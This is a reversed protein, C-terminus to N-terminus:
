AHALANRLKSMQGSGPQNQGPHQKVQRQREEAHGPVAWGHVLLVVDGATHGEPAGAIRAEADLVGRKAVQEAANQQEGQGVHAQGGVMRAPLLRIAPVGEGVLKQPDVVVVHRAHEKQRPQGHHKQQQPQRQHPKMKTAREPPSPCPQENKMQQEKVGIQQGM